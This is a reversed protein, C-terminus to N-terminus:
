TFLHALQTLKLFHALYFPSIVSTFTTGSQQKMRCCCCCCCYCCGLYTYVTISHINSHHYEGNYTAHQLDFEVAELQKINRFLNQLPPPRKATTAAAAAAAAAATTSATTTTTTTATAATTTTFAVEVKEEIPAGSFALHSMFFLRHTEFLRM